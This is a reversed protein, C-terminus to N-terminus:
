GALGELDFRQALDACNEDVWADIEAGAAEFDAGFSADLNEIAAMAEPDINQPDSMDIVVGDLEDAVTQFGDAMTRFADEIEAPADDAVQQAADAIPTFLEGFDIADQGTFAATPDFDEFATAFEALFACDGLEEALADEDIGSAEETVDETVDETEPETEETTEAVTDSAGTETDTADDDGCAALLLAFAAVIAVITTRRM